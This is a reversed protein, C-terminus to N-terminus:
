LYTYFPMRELDSSSSVFKNFLKERWYGAYDIVLVLKHSVLFAHRYKRRKFCDLGVEVLSFNSCMCDSSAGKISPSADIGVTCVPVAKHM